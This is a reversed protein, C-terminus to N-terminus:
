SYLIDLAFPARIHRCCGPDLRSADFSGAIDHKLLQLTRRLRRIEQKRVRCQVPHAPRWGQLHELRRGVRVAVHAHQWRARNRAHHLPHVLYSRIHPLVDSPLRRAFAYTPDVVISM